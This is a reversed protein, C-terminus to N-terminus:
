KGGKKKNNIIRKKTNRLTTESIGFAKSVQKQTKDSNSYVAVAAVSSPASSGALGKTFFTNALRISDSTQKPKLKLKSAASGILEPPAPPRIALKQSKNIAKAARSIRVKPIDSKKSIADLSRPFKVQRAALYVSAVASDETKRGQMAGSNTYRRFIEYAAEKAQKPLGLDTSVKGIKSVGIAFTEKQKITERSGVEQKVFFTPKIVSPKSDEALRFKIKSM